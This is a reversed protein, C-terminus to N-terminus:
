RLGSTTSPSPISFVHSLRHTVSRRTLRRRLLTTRSTHNAQPSMGVMPSISGSSM